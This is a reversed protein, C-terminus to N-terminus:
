KSEMFSEVQSRDPLPDIGGDGTLSLTATAAGFEVCRRFPNKSALKPAGGEEFMQALFGALFADGAGTSDVVKGGPPQFAPIKGEIDEMGGTSYWATGDPGATVLVTKVNGGLAELVEKPAELANDALRSIPQSYLGNKDAAETDDPFLFAVEDVSIKVIEAHARVYDLIRNRAESPTSVQGEWFVARWNIDVIVRLQCDKATLTVEELAERSGRFALGLTGTALFQSAYYLRGPIRMHKVGSADAFLANEGRFGAFVREGDKDVDVLVERTPAGELVQIGDVNVLMDHLRSTLNQGNKDDGVVSILASAVGLRALASAVNAPAGGPLADGENQSDARRLVDYLAEGICLVLPPGLTTTTIPSVFSMEAAERAAAEDPTDVQAQVRLRKGVRRPQPRQRSLVNARM